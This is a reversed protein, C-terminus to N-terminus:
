YDSIGFYSRQLDFEVPSFGWVTFNLEGIEVTGNFEAAVRSIQTILLNGYLDGTTSDSKGSESPFSVIPVGHCLTVLTLSSSSNFIM